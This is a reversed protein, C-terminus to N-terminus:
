PPNALLNPKLKPNRDPAFIAKPIPNANANPNPLPKLKLDLTPTSRVKSSMYDSSALNILDDRIQFYLALQNVLPTFDTECDSFAAM